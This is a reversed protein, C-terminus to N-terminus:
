MPTKLRISSIVATANGIGTRQPKFIFTPFFTISLPMNPMPIVYARVGERSMIEQGTHASIIIM